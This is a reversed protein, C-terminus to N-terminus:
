NKSGPKTLYYFAEDFWILVEVIAVTMSTKNVKKETSLNTTPFLKLTNQFAKLALKTRPYNVNHWKEQFM